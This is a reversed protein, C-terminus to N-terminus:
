LFNQINTFFYVLSLFIYQHSITINKNIVSEFFNHYYQDFIAPNIYYKKWFGENILSNFYIISKTINEDTLILPLLKGCETSIGALEDDNVGSLFNKISVDIPDSLNIYISYQAIEHIIIWLFIIYLEKEMKSLKPSNLLTYYVNKYIPYYKHERFSNITSIHAIDHYFMDMSCGYYGDFYAIESTFGVLDLDEFFAYLWTNFTFLGDDNALILTSDDFFEPLQIDETIDSCNLKAIYIFIKVIKLYDYENNLNNVMDFLKSRYYDLNNLIIQTNKKVDIDHQYVISTILGNDAGNLLYIELKRWYSFIKSIFYHKFQNSLLSNPNNEKLLQIYDEILTIDNDYESGDGIRHNM